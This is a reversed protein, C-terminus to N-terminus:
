THSTVTGYIGAVGVSVYAPDRNGQSVSLHTHVNDVDTDNALVNGTANSGATIGAETASGTDAVAVPADDTGNITVTLTTSSTGGIPLADHLSLTDHQPTGANIAYVTPTSNAISYSDRCPS